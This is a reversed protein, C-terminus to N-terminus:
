SKLPIGVVDPSSVRLRGQGPALGVPQCHRRRRRLRATPAPALVVLAEVDRLLEESWCDACWARKSAARSTAEDFGCSECARSRGPVASRAEAPLVAETSM